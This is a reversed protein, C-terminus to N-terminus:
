WNKREFQDDSADITYRGEVQDWVYQNGMMQRIRSTSTSASAAVNGTAKRQRWFNLTVEKPAASSYSLFYHKWAYIHKDVIQWSDLYWFRMSQLAAVDKLPNNGDGIGLNLIATSKYWTVALNHRNKMTDIYWRVREGTWDNKGDNNSDGLYSKGDKSWFPDLLELREPMLNSSVSGNRTGDSIKKAVATALQNGLSHGAFRFNSNSHNAFLAKYQRFAIESVSINPSQQTSYSGDSQRYRMGRPGNASWIKAEADKVEGEDAFQNWYFIMVNWGDAKWKAVTNINNGSDQDKMMFTNRKYNNTSTGNQWGHFFVVTPKSPNYFATSVSIKQGTTENYAKASADQSNFWYFGYDLFDGTRANNDNSPKGETALDVTDEIETLPDTCATFLFALLFLWQTLKLNKM